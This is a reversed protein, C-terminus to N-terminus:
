EDGGFLPPGTGTPLTTLLSAGGSDTRDNRAAVIFKDEETPVRERLSADAAAFAVDVPNGTLMEGAVPDGADLNMGTNIGSPEQVSGRQQVQNIINEINIIQDQLNHISGEFNKVLNNISVEFNHAVNNISVELNNEVNESAGSM